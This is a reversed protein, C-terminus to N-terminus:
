TRSSSASAAKTTSRHSKGEDREDDLTIVVGGNLFALERLRQALTDFSFVITEFVQTDPPLTIKTGRKRHHGDRDLDAL